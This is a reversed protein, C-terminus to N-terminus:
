DRIEPSSKYPFLTHKGVFDLGMNGSQKQLALAYNDGLDLGTNESQMQLPTQTM